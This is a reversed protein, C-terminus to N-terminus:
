RGILESGVIEFTSSFSINLFILLSKFGCSQIGCWCGPNRCAWEVTYCHWRMVSAILLAISFWSYQVAAYKSTLWANSLTPCGPSNNFRVRLSNWGASITSLHVGIRSLIWHLFKLCSGCGNRHVGLSCEQDEEKHVICMQSVLM